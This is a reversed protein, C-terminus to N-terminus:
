EKKHFFLIKNYYIGCKTQLLFQCGVGTNKGPSDRPCPAQLTLTWATASDSVASDRACVCKTIWEYVLPCKLPKWNKAIIINSHINM